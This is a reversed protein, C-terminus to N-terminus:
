RQRSSGRSFAGTGPLAAVTVALLAVAAGALLWGTVGGALPLWTEFAVAAVLQGAVNSMSLLLVGATRVLLAAIGIFVTGVAGGIYLLPDGPWSTPWGNSAISIGAAALLISAGVVFNIFTSAVASRGAARVLGNMASQWSVLLGAIIPVAILWLQAAHGVPGGLEALVSLAVAIVALVTGVIRQMTPDVRGGPGLGLRDLILGSLVQGAVVGVTFLALGIVSGALGQAVVFFAGCAGGTLAWWPLHGSRVEARVLRLGARARHSLLVVLVLIALGSGFSVAATVYADGLAQSLGGNVRTQVAVLAGAFGSGLLAAWVPISHRQTM